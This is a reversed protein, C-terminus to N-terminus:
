HLVFGKGSIMILMSVIQLRDSFQLSRDLLSQRSEKNKSTESVDTQFLLTYRSFNSSNFCSCKTRYIPPPKQLCFDVM